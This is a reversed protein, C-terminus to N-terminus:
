KRGCSALGKTYMKLTLSGCHIKFVTLDYRTFYVKLRSYSDIKERSIPIRLRSWLPIM